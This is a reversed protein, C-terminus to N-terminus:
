TRAACNRKEHAIGDCDGDAMAEPLDLSDTTEFLAQGAGVTVESRHNRHLLLGPLSICQAEAHAREAMRLRGTFVTKFRNQVGGFITDVIFITSVLFPADRAPDTLPTRM